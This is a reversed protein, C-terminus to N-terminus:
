APSGICRTGRWGPRVFHSWNVFLLKPDALAVDAVAANSYAAIDDFRRDILLDIETVFGNLDFATWHIARDRRSLRQELIADDLHSNADFNSGM